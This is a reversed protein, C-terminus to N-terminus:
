NGAQWGLKGEREVVRGIGPFEFHYALLLANEKAAREFLKRRSDPSISKEYDFGPCWEPHAMQFPQHAADAIHLLKEGNSEILLATHGITHGPAAIACIGPLAEAETGVIGLTTVRDQNAKLTEWTTRTPNTDGEPFREDATWFDWESKWIIYRANPYVFEGAADLIGGVHDGHGHTIIITDVTGAVVGQEALKSVVDSTPLGTDILVNNTGTRVLVVNMSFPLLNPDGNFERVTRELEDPPADPLFAAASRPNGGVKMVLCEFAGVNFRYTESM